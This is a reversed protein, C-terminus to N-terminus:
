PDYIRLAGFEDNPENYNVRPEGGVGRVHLTLKSNWIM